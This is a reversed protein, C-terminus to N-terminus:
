GIKLDPSIWAYMQGSMRHHMHLGSRCTWCFWRYVGYRHVVFTVRTTRPAKPSGPLVAVNLGIAPMAFTHLERTFNRIRLEVVHGPQIAFNFPMAEDGSATSRVDITLPYGSSHSEALAPLLALVLVVGVTGALLLRKLASFADLQSAM